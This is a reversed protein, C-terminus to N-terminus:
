NARYSELSELPAGSGEVEGREIILGIANAGKFGSFVQFRTGALNYLLHPIFVTSSTPGTGGGVSERTFFEQMRQVPSTRWVINTEV